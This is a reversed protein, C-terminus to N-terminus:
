FADLLTRDNITPRQDKIEGQEGHSVFLAAMKRDRMGALDRSLYARIRDTVTFSSSYLPDDILKRDSVTSGFPRMTMKAM